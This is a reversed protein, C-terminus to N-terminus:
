LKRYFMFLLFILVVIATLFLSSGITLLDIKIPNSTVLARKQTANAAYKNATLLYQESNMIFLRAKVLYICSRICDIWSSVASMPDKAFFLIEKLILEYIHDLDHIKINKLKFISRVAWFTLIAAFSILLTEAVGKFTFVAPLAPNNPLPVAFIQPLTGGVVVSLTLVLIPLIMNKPAEHAETAPKGFLVKHLVRLASLAIFFSAIKLVLYAIYSDYLVGYILSKSVFGNFLPLGALAFLGIILCSAIIPMSKFLGGLVYLDQKGMREIIVGICMFLLTNYLIHNWGFVLAANIGEAGGAGIGALMYGISGILLYSLIQRVDTRFLAFISGFLAMSSGMIILSETGPFIRALAYVAIKTTFVTLIVASSASSKSYADPLWTHVPLIAANLGIGILILMSPLGSALTNIQMTGSYYYNLMIGALLIGGGALHMVLYKYAAKLALKERNLSILVVAAVMMIEWFLFFSFFDGSFLVGMASGVYIFMFAFHKKDKVTVTFISILVTIFSFITAMFLNLRDAHFLIVEFESFLFVYSKQPAILLINIFALTPLLVILVKKLWGRTLPIVLAAIFYLFFPIITEM